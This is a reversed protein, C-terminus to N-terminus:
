VISVRVGVNVVGVERGSLDSALDSLHCRLRGTEQQKACTQDGGRPYCASPDAGLSSRDLLAEAALWRRLSEEAEDWRSFRGMVFRSRSCVMWIMRRWRCMIWLNLLANPDIPM